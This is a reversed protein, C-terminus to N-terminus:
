NLEIQIADNAFKAMDEGRKIAKKIEEHENENHNSNSNPVFLHINQSSSIEKKESQSLLDFNCYDKCQQDNLIQLHTKQPIHKIKYYNQWYSNIMIM